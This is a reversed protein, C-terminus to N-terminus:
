FQRFYELLCIEFLKCFLLLLGRRVDGTATIVTIRWEDHPIVTMLWKGNSPLAFSVFFLKVFGGGEALM